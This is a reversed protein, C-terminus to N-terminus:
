FSQRLFIFKGIGSRCHLLARLLSYIPVILVQIQLLISWCQTYHFTFCWLVPFPASSTIESEQLAFYHNSISPSWSGLICAETCYGAISMPLTICSKGASQRCCSNRKTCFLLISTLAALSTQQSLSWKAWIGQPGSQFATFNILFLICPFILLFCM